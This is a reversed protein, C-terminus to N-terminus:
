YKVGQRKTLEKFKKTLSQTISGPKGTGIKRGDVKVVPIIEAATGTLFCEDAIYLEHRTFVHEHAPIKLAEALDLVADRTVGRLVGM